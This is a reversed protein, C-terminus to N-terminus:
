PQQRGPPFLARLAQRLADDDRGDRWVATAINDAALREVSATTMPTDTVLLWRGPFRRAKDALESARKLTGHRSGGASKVEIFAKQDGRIAILDVPVDHTKRGDIDFRVLEAGARRIADIVTREYELASRVRSQAQQVVEGPLVETASELVREAVAPGAEEVVDDIIEAIVVEAEKYSLRMPVLGITSLLLLVSGVLILAVTGLQNSSVFVAAIGAIAMTAGLLGVAWRHPKEMRRVAARSPANDTM